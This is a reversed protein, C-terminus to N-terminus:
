VLLLILAALRALGEEPIVIVFVKLDTKEQRADFSCNNDKEARPNPAAM